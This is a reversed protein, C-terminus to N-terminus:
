WSFIFIKRRVDHKSQCNFLGGFCIMSVLCSDEFGESAVRGGASEWSGGLRRWSRIKGSTMCNSM